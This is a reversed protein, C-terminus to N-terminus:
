KSSKFHEKDDYMMLDAADFVDASRYHRSPDYDALGLAISVAYEHNGASFTTHPIERILKRFLDDRNEYDSGQLIVSFEDGGIRHVPSHQFTDCLLRAAAILLQDGANHGYSDNIVKLDNVDAVVIAFSACKEQIKRDLENMLFSHATANHVSTLSDKYALMGLEKAQKSHISLYLFVLCLAIVPWPTFGYVFASLVSSSLVIVTFALMKLARDKEYIVSHTYRFICMGVSALIYLLPWIVALPFLPLREYVGLPTIHFVFPDFVNIILLIANLLIPTMIAPKVWRSLTFNCTSACYTTLVFSLITQTVFYVSMIATRIGATGIPFYGEIIWSISNIILIFVTLGLLRNFHSSGFFGTNKESKQQFYLMLCMAAAVANLELCTIIYM